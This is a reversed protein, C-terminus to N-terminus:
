QPQLIQHGRHLPSLGKPATSPPFCCSSYVGYPQQPSLTVENYFFHVTHKNLKFSLTKLFSIYYALVEEDSFDLKLVIISNVHNNSLLYDPPALFLPLPKYHQRTHCFSFKLSSSHPRSESMLQMPVHEGNKLDRMPCWSPHSPVSLAVHISPVHSESM